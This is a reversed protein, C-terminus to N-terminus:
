QLIIIKINNESNGRLNKRFIPISSLNPEPITKFNLAKESNQHKSYVFCSFKSQWKQPHFFSFLDLNGRKKPATSNVEIIKM